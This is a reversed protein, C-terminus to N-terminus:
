EERTIKRARSYVKSKYNKLMQELQRISEQILAEHLYGWAVEMDYETRGAPLKELLNTSWEGVEDLMPPLIREEVIIKGHARIAKKAQQKIKM